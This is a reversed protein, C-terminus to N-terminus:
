LSQSGLITLLMVQFRHGSCHVTSVELSNPILFAALSQPLGVATKMISLCCWKHKGCIFIIFFIDNLIWPFASLCIFLCM